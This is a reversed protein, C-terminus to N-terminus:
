SAEALAREEDLFAFRPASQAIGHFGVGHVTRDMLEDTIQRCGPVADTGAGM